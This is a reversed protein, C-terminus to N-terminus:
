VGEWAGDHDTSYGYYDRIRQVARQNYRYCDVPKHHGPAVDRVVIAYEPTKLGLEGAKKGITVAHIGGCMQGIETASYTRERAPLLNGVDVGFITETTRLRFADVSAPDLSSTGGFVKMIANFQRTQANMLMAQSRLLKDSAQPVSGPATYAGTEMVTPVVDDFIWSEFRQAEPMDSRAILRVVDGRDIFLMEQMGGKTPTRRKVTGKCHTRVAEGPRTYKLCLAVDHGCYLKRGNETITRVRGFEPNDLIMLDNMGSQRGYKQEILEFLEAGTDQTEPIKPNNMM